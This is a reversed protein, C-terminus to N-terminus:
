PILPVREWVVLFFFYKPLISPTCTRLNKAHIIGELTVDTLSIRRKDVEWDHPPLDGEVRTICQYVLVLRAAFEWNNSRRQQLLGCAGGFWISVTVLDLLNRFPEEKKYVDRLVTQKEELSQIESASFM